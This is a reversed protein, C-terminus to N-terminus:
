LGQEDKSGVRRSYGLDVIERGPRYEDIIRLEKRFTITKWKVMVEEREADIILLYGAEIEWRYEAKQFGDPIGKTFVLQSDSTLEFSCGGKEWTGTIDIGDVDVWVHEFQEAYLSQLIMISFWLGGAVLMAHRKKVYLKKPDVGCLTLALNAIVIFVLCVIPLALLLKLALYFGPQM